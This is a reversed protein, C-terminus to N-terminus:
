SKIRTARSLRYNSRQEHTEDLIIREKFAGRESEKERRMQELTEWSINNREAFAKVVELIDVLEKPDGAEKFEAVEEDLKAHLLTHFEEDTAVHTTSSGGNREIVHPVKDRVLKGYKM